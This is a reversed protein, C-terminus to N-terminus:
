VIEIGFDYQLKQQLRRATRLAVRLRERDNASLHEIPVHRDPTRGLEAQRLQHCLLLDQLEEFAIRAVEALEPDFVGLRALADLREITGSRRVRNALAYVRAADVIIRLGNRKLDITEVGEHTTTVLRNFLGLAPRGAADDEVMLRLLGRGRRMERELHARLEATLADDGYQTGFDFVVTSWRASDQAPHDVLQTIRGRWGALTRRFEDNRAMIDGPCLPYGVHDLAPNLAEAFRRFWDLDSEGADDDIILGNDQDTSLLTEGRGGSGMIILAFRVPPEGDGRGAMDELVLEIVRHQIALHLDTLARVARTTRRHNDRARGAAEPLRRFLEALTDLDPASAIEDDLTQRPTALARVLDTQSVMGVPRGASDVVVTYRLRHRQQLEEVEWLPTDPAVTIPERCATNRVGDAPSAGGHILAEAVTAPTLLGVLRQQGDIVGLSGIQRRTLTDFAETLTTGEGCTALPSHMVQRVPRALTGRVSERAQRAKRMRAALARNIAEFFAPSEQELRQVVDDPVALLECPGHARATSRYEVGDLYNALGILDGPQARRSDGRGSIQELDGELHIFVQERYPEGARYLTEGDQLRVMHGGQLLASVTGPELGALLASGGICQRAEAENM